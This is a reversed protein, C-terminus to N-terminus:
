RAFETLALLFHLIELWRGSSSIVLQFSRYVFSSFVQNCKVTAGGELTVGCAVGADDYKIGEVEKGM